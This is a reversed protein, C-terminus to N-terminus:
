DNEFRWEAPHQFIGHGETEERERSGCKVFFHGIEEKRDYVVLGPKDKVAVTIKYCGPMLPLNRYHCVVTGLGGIEEPSINQIATSTQTVRVGDDSFIGIGFNPQKLSTKAKYSIRVILDDYLEIGEVPEGDINQLQVSTLEIEDSGLNQSVVAQARDTVIKKNVSEMYENTVETVDGDRYIGGEKLWIVRTCFRRIHNLDHSVLIISKGKECLGSMVRFSKSKFEMDGVALVEDVLLLDPHMQAAISFGLRVYMGSSYHKVPSDIFDHLGAFEIISEEKEAIEARSLGLISGNLYLNERGSLMPHFGAGIEILAGIKGRIRVSGRDPLFIGNLIKLLTSKGAGNQGIVGVREGRAVEFGVEELAWFEDKRLKETHLSLGLIEKTIDSIGYLMSRKLSRCYKKALGEVRILIDEDM